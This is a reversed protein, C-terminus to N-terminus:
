IRDFTVNGIMGEKLDRIIIKYVKDYDIEGGSIYAGRKKGIQDLTVVIDDNIEDIGYRNKLMEPYLEELKKLIYIALAELDLIEEKISSFSAMNYAHEQNDLKPWLIGPSDLLEINSGVRIWGLQKTVGPKDGTIAKKKGVLKNILTSKGVNPAGVVLARINRPKMGKNKREENLKNSIKNTKEIITNVNKSNILDTLVVEYGKNRYYDALIDTQKKDCIDYKTMILIRPKDKILEDIDVIKSSIPIRADVVEYVIDILSLMEKIERRAKAMHGPYWNINTKNENM